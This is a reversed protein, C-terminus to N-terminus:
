IIFVKIHDIVTIVWLVNDNYTGPFLLLLFFYLNKVPIFAILIRPISKLYIIKYKIRGNDNIFIGYIGYIFM